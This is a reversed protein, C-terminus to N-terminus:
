LLIRWELSLEWVLGNDALERLKYEGRVHEGEKPPGKEQQLLFPIGLLAAKYGFKSSNYHSFRTIIEEKKGIFYNKM